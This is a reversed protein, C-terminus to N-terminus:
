QIFVRGFYEGVFGYLFMRRVIWFKFLYIFYGRGQCMQLFYLYKGVFFLFFKRLVQFFCTKRIVCILINIIKLLNFVLRDFMYVYYIKNLNKLYILFIRLDFIEFVGLVGSLFCFEVFCDLFWQEVGFLCFKLLVGGGVYLDISYKVIFKLLQKLFNGWLVNLFNEFYLLEQWLVINGIYEKGKRVIFTDSGFRVRIQLEQGSKVFVM